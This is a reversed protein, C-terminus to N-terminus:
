DNCVWFIVFNMEWLFCFNGVEIFVNLLVEVIIFVSMKQRNWNLLFDDDIDGLKNQCYVKGDRVGFKLGYMNQVLYWFIVLFLVVCSKFFCFLCFLVLIEDCLYEYLFINCIIVIGVLKVDMLIIYM